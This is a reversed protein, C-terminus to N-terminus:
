IRKVKKQKTSVNPHLIKIAHIESQIRGKTFKNNTSHGMKVMGWIDLTKARNALIVGKRLTLDNLM